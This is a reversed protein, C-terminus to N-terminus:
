SKKRARTPPSSKRTRNPFVDVTLPSHVKLGTVKKGRAHKVAQRLGRMIKAAANSM